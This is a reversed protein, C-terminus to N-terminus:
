PTRAHEGEKGTIACGEKQIPIQGQTISCEEREERRTPQTADPAEGHVVGGGDAEVGKEREELRLTRWNEGGRAVRADAHRAAAIPTGPAVQMM